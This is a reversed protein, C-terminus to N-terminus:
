YQDTIKGIEGLNEPARDSLHVALEKPCSNIFQKRVILDKLGHFTQETNTLKLWRMLFTSLRFIFHDPSEYTEPKLGRSKRRYGDATLYYRKMLALKM